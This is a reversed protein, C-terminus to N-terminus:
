PARRSPRSTSKFNRDSSVEILSDCEPIRGLCRCSAIFPQSAVSQRSLLHVRLAFGPAAVQSWHHYGRDDCDPSCGTDEKVVKAWAIRRLIAPRRPHDRGRRQRLGACDFNRGLRGAIARHAVMSNGELRTRGEPKYSITALRQKANTLFIVLARLATKALATM